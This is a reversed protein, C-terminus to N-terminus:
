LLVKSSVVHSVMASEPKSVETGGAALQLSTIKADEDEEVAGEGSGTEEVARAATNDVVRGDEVPQIENQGARLPTMEKLPISSPGGPSRHRLKARPALEIGSVNRSSATLHGEAPSDPVDDGSNQSRNSTSMKRDTMSKKTFIWVTPHEEFMGDIEELSRGSTEPYFIYIILGIIGNLVAWIAYFQVGLRAIGLPTVFVVGFNILWNTAVGYSM